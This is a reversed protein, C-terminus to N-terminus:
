KALSPALVRNLTRELEAERLESDAAIIKGDRDVLVARPLFSIEFQRFEPSNLGDLAIANLRPMKWRKNQFAKM